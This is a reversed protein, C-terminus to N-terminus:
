IENRKNSDPRRIPRPGAEQRRGEAVNLDLPKASSSVFVALEDKCHIVGSLVRTAPLKVKPLSRDPLLRADSARASLYRSRQGIASRPSPIFAPGPPPPGLWDRKAAKVFRVNITRQNDGSGYRKSYGRLASSARMFTANIKTDNPM